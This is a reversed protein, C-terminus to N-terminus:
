LDDITGNDMLLDAATAYAQLDATGEQTSPTHSGGDNVANIGPDEWQDEPPPKGGGRGRWGPEVGSGGVWEWPGGRVETKFLSPRRKRVQKKVSKPYSKPGM